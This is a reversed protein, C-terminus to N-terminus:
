HKVADGSGKPVRVSEVLDLVEQPPPPTVLSICLTV